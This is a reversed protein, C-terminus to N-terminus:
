VVLSVSVPGNTTQATFRITLDRVTLDLTFDVISLVGPTETIAQRFIGELVDQGIGKQFIQQIYPIGLSTDLLCEGLFTRLRQTLLQQVEANGDVLQLEGNVVALDCYDGTGPTLVQLLDSM